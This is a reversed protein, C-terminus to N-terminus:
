GGNNAMLLDLSTALPTWPRLDVAFRVETSVLDGTAVNDGFRVQKVKNRTLVPSFVGPVGSAKPTRIVVHGSENTRTFLKQDLNAHGHLSVM